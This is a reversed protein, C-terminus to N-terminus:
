RNGLYTFERLVKSFEILLEEANQELSRMRGYEGFLGSDSALASCLYKIISSHYLVSFHIRISAASGKINYIM